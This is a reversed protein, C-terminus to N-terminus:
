EGPQAPRVDLLEIPKLTHERQKGGKELRRFGVFDVRCRLSVIVEEEGKLQQQPPMPLSIAAVKAQASTPRMGGASLTLSTETGPFQMQEPEEVEEGRAIREEREQALEEVSKGAADAERALAEEDDVARLGPEKTDTASM